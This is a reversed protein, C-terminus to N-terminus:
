STVKEILDVQVDVGDINSSFGSIATSGDPNPNVISDGIKQLAFHIANRHQISSINFTDKIICHMVFGDVIFRIPQSNNLGNIFRATRM